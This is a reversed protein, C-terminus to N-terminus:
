EYTYTHTYASAVLKKFRGMNECIYYVKKIKDGVKVQIALTMAEKAEYSFLQPMNDKNVYTRQKKNRPAEMNMAPYHFTQITVLHGGVMLEREKIGTKPNNLAALYEVLKNEEALVDIPTQDTHVTIVEDGDRDHAAGFKVDTNEGTTQVVMNNAIIAPPLAINSVISSVLNETLDASPDKDDTLVSVSCLDIAADSIARTNRDNLSSLDPFMDAIVVADQEPPTFSGQVWILVPVEITFNNFVATSLHEEVILSSTAPWLLMVRTPDNLDEFVRCELCDSQYPQKKDQVCLLFMMINVNINIYFKIINYWLWLKDSEQILAKM